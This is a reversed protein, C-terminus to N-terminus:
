TAWEDYLLFEDNMWRENMMWKDENMMWKDENMMWKDENMMWEDNKMMKWENVMWYDNMMRFENMMCLWINMMWWVAYMWRLSTDMTSCGYLWENIMYCENMYSSCEGQLLWINVGEDYLM